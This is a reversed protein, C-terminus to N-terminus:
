KNGMFQILNGEPDAVTCVYRTENPNVEVGSFPEAIIECESNKKVLEFYKSVSDVYLNLMIRYRDKNKGEVESHKALWIKPGGECLELAYGYDKEFELKNVIKMGLTETYFTVLKDPNSSFLFFKYNNIM